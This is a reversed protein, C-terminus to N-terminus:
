KARGVESTQRNGRKPAGVLRPGVRCLRRQRDCGYGLHRASRGRMWFCRLRGRLPTISGFGGRRAPIGLGSRCHSSGCSAGIRWTSIAPTSAARSGAMVPGICDAMARYFLIYSGVPFSRVGPRLEPRARGMHPNSAISRLASEIRDLTRDAAAENDEAIFEWIELLDERALPRRTIRLAM